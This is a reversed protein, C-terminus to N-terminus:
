HQAINTTEKLPEFDFMDLFTTHHKLIYWTVFDITGFGNAIQTWNAPSATEIIAQSVMPIDAMRKYPGKTEIEMSKQGTLDYRPIEQSMFGAYNNIGVNDSLHDGNEYIDEETFLIAGGPVFLDQPIDGYLRFTVNRGSRDQSDASIEMGYLDSVPPYQIPHNVWIPRMSSQSKGRSDVITCRIVHFGAPLSITIAPTSASGVLFVTGSPVTWTYSVINANFWGFSRTNNFSLIGRGTTYDADVQRWSGINCVPSPKSGQDTYPVDYNKYFVGKFIRSLLTWMPEYSFVSVTQGVDIARLLRRAYGADGRSKGDIYLIGSTPALRVVGYTVIDGNIDTIRFLQGPKVNAWNSTNNINLSGIPYQVPFTAVTATAVVQMPFINLKPKIIHTRGRLLALDGAPIPM